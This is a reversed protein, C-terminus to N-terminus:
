PAPSEETVTSPDPAQISVPSDYDFVLAFSTPTTGAAALAPDFIFAASEVRGDGAVRFVVYSVQTMDLGGDPAPSAGAGANGGFAVLCGSGALDPAGTVTAPDVRVLGADSLSQFIDGSDKGTAAVRRHVWTGTGQSDAWEDTGIKINKSVLDGFGPLTMSMDISDRDPEQHAMTLTAEVPLPTASADTQTMPFILLMTGVASYHDMSKMTANIAALDKGCVDGAAATASPAETAPATTPTPPPTPALTPAPAQSSPAQSSPAQTAGASAAASPSASGSACAALVLVAAAGLLALRPATTM